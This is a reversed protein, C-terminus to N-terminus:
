LKIKIEEISSVPGKMFISNDDGIRISLIGTSFKIDVINSVKKTIFGAYATACATGCAKTLGAGREWVKVDILNENKITAITVNNKQFINM